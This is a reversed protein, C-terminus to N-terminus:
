SVRAVCGNATLSSSSMVTPSGLRHRRVTPMCTACGNPGLLVVCVVGVVKGVQGLGYRKM